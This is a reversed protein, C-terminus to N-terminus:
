GQRGAAGGFFGSGIFNAIVAAGAAEKIAVISHVDTKTGSAWSWAMASAGAKYSADFLVAQVEEIGVRTQGSGPTMTQATTTSLIMDYAWGGSSCTIADSIPSSAGSGGQGGTSDVPTTQDVGDLSLGFIALYSVTGTNDLVMNHTGSPPNVLWYIAVHITSFNKDVGLTPTLGNYTISTLTNAYKFAM